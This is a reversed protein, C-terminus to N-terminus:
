GLPNRLGECMEWDNFPREFCPNWGAGQESNESVEMVKVDKSGALSYLRPYLDCLPIESCWNDEWFRLRDGKGVVFRCNLNLHSIEKLIEKWLRIGYSRRVEKTFWGGTKTGFKLSIFVRWPAETEIAFNWLWKGLLARNLLCLRQVGLGGKERNLCVTEWNVNHTRELNALLGFVGGVLEGGGGM